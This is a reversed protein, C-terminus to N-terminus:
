AHAVRGGRVTFGGPLRGTAEGEPLDLSWGREAFVGAIRVRLRNSEEEPNLMVRELDPRGAEDQQTVIVEAASYRVQEDFDALLPRAAEIAGPHKRESLWVLLDVKKQPKFEEGREKEIVEYVKRIAAEEGKTDVYLRLPLAVQRCRELHRDLPRFLPEGMGALMGYVFDKEAKDKLQNELNMDFRTLLAVIAKPSGEDALWRASAERDDAQADRNTLTRQHRAIRQEKSLFLDFIGM